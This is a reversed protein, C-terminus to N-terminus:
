KNTALALLTVLTSIEPIPLDEIEVYFDPGENKVVAGVCTKPIVPAQDAVISGM